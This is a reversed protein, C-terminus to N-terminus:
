CGFIDALNGGNQDDFERSPPEHDNELVHASQFRKLAEITEADWDGSRCGGLDFGLSALRQQVGTISDVPDLGGIRVEFEHDEVTLRGGRTRPDIPVDIRGDGDVIGEVLHGDLTPRYPV